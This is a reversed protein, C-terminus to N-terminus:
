RRYYTGKFRFNSKYRNIMGDIEALVGNLVGSQISQITNKGIIHVEDPLRGYPLKETQKIQLAQLRMQIGPSISGGQYGDITLLDITICTGADIVLVNSDPFEVAAGM